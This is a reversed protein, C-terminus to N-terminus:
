WYLCFNTFIHKIKTDYFHLVFILRMNSILLPFNLIYGDELALHVAPTVSLLSTWSLIGQEPLRLLLCEAVNLKRLMIHNLGNYNIELVNFSNKCEASNKTM